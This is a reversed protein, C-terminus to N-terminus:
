SIKKLGGWKNGKIELTEEIVSKKDIEKKLDGKKTLYDFVVEAFLTEKLESETNNLIKM